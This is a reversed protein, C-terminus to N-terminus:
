ALPTRLASDTTAGGEVLIPHLSIRRLAHIMGLTGEPGSLEKMALARGCADAQRQPMPVRLVHEHKAPLGQLKDSKLRRLLLRPSVGDIGGDIMNPLFGFSMQDAKVKQIQWVLKAAVM